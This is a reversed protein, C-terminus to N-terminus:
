PTKQQLLILHELPPHCQQVSSADAENPFGQLATQWRTARAARVHGREDPVSSQRENPIKRLQNSAPQTAEAHEVAM